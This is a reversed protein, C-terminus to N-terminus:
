AVFLEKRPALFAVIKRFAGAPKTYLAIRPNRRPVRRTCLCHHFRDGRTPRQRPRARRRGSPTAIMRRADRVARWGALGPEVPPGRRRRVAVARATTSGGPRM